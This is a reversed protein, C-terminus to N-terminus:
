SRREESNLFNMLTRPIDQLSAVKDVGGLRIAERPMGFVVCSAEDQAMTYAGARKMELMGAAGDKGMGTMIVGLANAGAFRAVSNFLVDVSPRQHFVLPGTGVEVYYSGGVRKLMMHFNGPAILATGPLVSDGDRAERVEIRCLENLRNAFTTTFRPPMHQVIVIGPTNAPVQMLVAKLAETGGTSAGMAIVKHTSRKLSLDPMTRVPGDEITSRRSVNVCAAARIKEALQVSMDGVSYSGGPKALVEVAGYELAELAMESNAPTLSSVIITPLPHYKMLKRLFSLGDMRPMEIDLTIVDPNLNVIKDRAVYPDPAAGVVLIDAHKSLEHSFIKRVIASDDVILVKIQKM